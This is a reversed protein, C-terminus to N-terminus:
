VLIALCAGALKLGFVTGLIEDSEDPAEVLDRVVIGSMGLYTFTGFLGVFAIAFNLTGFLEPGLYRALWVGVFLSVLLSLGRESFLWGTNAAIKRVDRSRFSRGVARVFDM